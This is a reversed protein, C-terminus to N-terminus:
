VKTFQSAYEYLANKLFEGGKGTKLYMLAKQQVERLLENEHQQKRYDALLESYSQRLESDSMPLKEVIRALRNIAETLVHMGLVNHLIADNQDTTLYNVSNQENENM